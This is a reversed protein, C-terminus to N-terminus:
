KYSYYAGKMTYHHDTNFFLYEDSHNKFSAYTDVTEIGNSDIMQMDIRNKEDNNEVLETNPYPYKNWLFSARPYINMYYLQGGYEDTIEKIKCLTNLTDRLSENDKRMALAQKDYETIENNGQLLCNKGVIIGNNIENKGSMRLIRSNLEILFNRGVIQDLNAREFQEFWEGSVIGDITPMTVHELVRNEFASYDINQKALSLFAVILMTACFLVTLVPYTRGNRRDPMRENKM